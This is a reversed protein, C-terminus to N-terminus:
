ESPTLQVVPLQADKELHYAKSIEYIVNMVAHRQITIGVTDNSEPQTGFLAMAIQDDNFNHESSSMVDSMLSMASSAGYRHSSEALHALIDDKHKAYFDTVLSSSSLVEFVIQHNHDSVSESEKQFDEESLETFLISVEKFDDDSLGTFLVTDAILESSMGDLYTSQCYEITFDTVTQETM